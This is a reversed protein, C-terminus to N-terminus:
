RTEQRQCLRALTRTFILRERDDKFPKFLMGAIAARSRLEFEVMPLTLVETAPKGSLQRAIEITDILNHFERIVENLWIWHLQQYTSALERKKKEYKDHLRTGKGAALPYFGEDKLM